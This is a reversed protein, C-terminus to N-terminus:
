FIRLVRKELRPNLMISTVKMRNNILFGKVKFSAKKTMMEETQPGNTKSLKKIKNLIGIKKTEHIQADTRIPSAPSLAM